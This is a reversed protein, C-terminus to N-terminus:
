YILEKDLATEKAITKTSMNLTKLMDLLQEDELLRQKKLELAGLRTLFYKSRKKDPYKKKILGKDNLEPKYRSIISGSLDKVQRIDKMQRPQDELAKLIEIRKTTGKLITDHNKIEELTIDSYDLDIKHTKRQKVTTNKQQTNWELTM